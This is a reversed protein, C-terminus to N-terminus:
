SELDKEPEVVDAKDVTFVAFPADWIVGKTRPYVRLQLDNDTHEIVVEYDTGCEVIALNDMGFQNRFVFRPEPSADTKFLDDTM